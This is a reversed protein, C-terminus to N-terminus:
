ALTTSESAASYRAPINTVRRQEHWQAEDVAPSVDANHTRAAAGRRAQQEEVM